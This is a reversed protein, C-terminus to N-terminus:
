LEVSFSSHVSSPADDDPPPPSPTAAARAWPQPTAPVKQPSPTASARAWAPKAARGEEPSKYSPKRALGM